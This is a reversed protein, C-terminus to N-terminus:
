TYSFIVHTHAPAAARVACELPELGWSALREGAASQGARFLVRPAAQSTTVRWAFVWDAGYVPDGSRGLGARFPRHESVTAAYGLSAALDQFYAPSQGGRHTVRAVVAARREQLSAGLGACADPLGCTQEWDPLLEYTTRPDAEDLLDLARADVRAMEEALAALTQGLTSDPDRPWVAGQPLLAFLLQQYDSAARDAM